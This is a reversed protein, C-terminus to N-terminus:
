PGPGDPEHHLEFVDLGQRLDFSSDHWGHTHEVVDAVADAGKDHRADFRSDPRTAVTPKVLSWALIWDKTSSHM